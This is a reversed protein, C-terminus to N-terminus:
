QSLAWKIFILNFCKVPANQVLIQARLMCVAGVQQLPIQTFVDSSPGVQFSHVVSGRPFPKLGLLHFCAPLLSHDNHLHEGNNEHVIAAHNDSAGFVIFTYKLISAEIQWLIVKTIIEGWYAKVPCTGGSVKSYFSHLSEQHSSVM